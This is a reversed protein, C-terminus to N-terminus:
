NVHILAVVENEAYMKEALYAGMPGGVMPGLLYVWAGKMSDAGWGAMATILRPGMDRAPNIAAGSLSGIIAIISGIAVGIIAPVAVSPVKNKEHTVGFIVFTLLSTGVVEILLAQSADTVDASWYAGFGAASKVSDTGRVIGNEEEFNVIATSYIGYNVAGGLMAGILQALSYPLFLNWSFDKPRMMAFSLSVAPNLHGGSISGTSYIALAAGLSWVTTAQGVGVLSKTYVLACVSGCGFFVLIFTGLVESLLKDMVGSLVCGHYVGEDNSDDDSANYDKRPSDIPITIMNNNQNVPQSGDSYVISQNGGGSLNGSTTATIDQSKLDYADISLTRKPLEHRYSQGSSSAPQITTVLQNFNDGVPSSVTTNKKPSRNRAPM